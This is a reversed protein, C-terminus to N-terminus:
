FRSRVFVVYGLVVIETCTELTEAGQADKFDKSFTVSYYLVLIHDEKAMTSPYGSTTGNPAM